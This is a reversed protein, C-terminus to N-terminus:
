QRATASPEAAPIMARYHAAKNPKGVAQYYDVLRQIASRTRPNAARFRSSIVRYSETLLPKAEQFQGSRTLQAGLANRSCAHLMEDEPFQAEQYAICAQLLPDATADHHYRGIYDSLEVLRQSM